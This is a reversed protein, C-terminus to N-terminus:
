FCVLFHQTVFGSFHCVRLDLPMTVLGGRQDMLQVLQDAGHYVSSKPMLVPLPVPVAGHNTMLQTLTHSTQQQLLMRKQNIQSTPSYCM